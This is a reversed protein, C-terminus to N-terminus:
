VAAELAAPHGAVIMGAPDWRRPDRIFRNPETWRVDKITMQM